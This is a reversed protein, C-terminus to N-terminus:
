PIGARKRSSTGSPGTAELNGVSACEAVAGFVGAAASCVIDSRPAVIMPRSSSRASQVNALGHGETHDSFVGVRSLCSQVDSAFALWQPSDPLMGERYLAAGALSMALKGAARAQREMTSVSMAVLPTYRHPASAGGARRTARTDASCLAQMGASWADISRWLARCGLVLRDQVAGLRDKATSTSADGVPASVMAPEGESLQSSVQQLALRTASSCKELANVLLDLKWSKNPDSAQSGASGAAAQSPACQLAAEEIWHCGSICVDAACEAATLLDVSQSDREHAKSYADLRVGVSAIFLADM